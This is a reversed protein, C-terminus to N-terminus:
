LFSRGASSAIHADGGELGAVELVARAASESAGRRLERHLALFRARLAERHAGPVLLAGVADALNGASAQAQLFEPVLAEGALLNPLSFHRVNVLQLSRGIWYTLPAFRYAAVMPRGVLMAELTATGSVALVVDSAALVDRARGDVLHVALGPERALQAEFLRRVGATAMPAAFSIGPFREQLLRAAGLFDPGLREVEGNRSGPLLAVITGAGLGLASRAAAADSGEAIEDAFPHGVFTAPVGSGALFAPEFPLLCLVRDCARRLLAVRGRRWAWVSPCVYQVTRLGATRLREEVGLNFDPADVGVFVAPAAARVREVLARRLRLLRPLHRVVEALGMVSLEDTTFWAECGAARMAPGAIGAFRADPRMRRLAHILGAGLQDGSSEGAALAILPGASVGM